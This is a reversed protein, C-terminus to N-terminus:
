IFGQLNEISWATGAAEITEPAGSEAEGDQQKKRCLM